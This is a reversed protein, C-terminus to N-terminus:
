IWPVQERETDLLSYDEQKTLLLNICAQTAVTYTHEKLGTICAVALDSLLSAQRFEERAFINSIHVEIFPLETAALADRIAISTHSYAAANLILMDIQQQAAQHIKDILEHEANTQYHSLKIDHQKALLSSGHIMEALSLEGYHQKERHGLLNLNPGNLIWIQM